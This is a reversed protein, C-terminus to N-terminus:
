LAEVAGAFVRGRHAYDTFRDFSACAPSFLVVWGPKAVKAAVEVAEDLEPADRTEVTHGLARRITHRAEGTVVLCRVKEKVPGALVSFDAGKDRGGMILVLPDNFDELARVVADVNTAKSDNYYRVGEVTRVLQLRHDLGGFSDLSRQVADTGAGMAVAVLAAASANERNHAGALRFRSLDLVEGEHGPVHLVIRDPGVDAGQEGDRRGAFFWKRSRISPVMDRCWADAGNLVAVDDPEQNEFLRAKSAAYAAMDPYRDMHDEAVNLLAAVKPAFTETTDLQFSSIEAVVADYDADDRVCDILPTGINGGVYTNLGAVRLMEGVLTTTTTKGNTGSIAALPAALFWSALEIEGVVPVGSLRAAAVAPITEPVGPSLVIMDAADFDRERHPGTVLRAGAGRVAAAAEGLEAEERRDAAIVEAGRSSLFRVLAMGTRALGVVVMTKGRVDM